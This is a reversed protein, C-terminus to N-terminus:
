EWSVGISGSDYFFIESNNKLEKFGITDSDLLWSRTCYFYGSSPSIKYEGRYNSEITAYLLVGTEMLEYIDHYNLDCSYTNTNVDHRVRVHYPLGGIEGGNGGVVTKPAKKIVGNEEILVNAYEGVSEVTEVASLKKFEAM